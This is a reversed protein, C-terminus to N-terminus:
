SLAQSLKRFDCLVGCSSSCNSASLIKSSTLLILLGEFLFFAPLLQVIEYIFTSASGRRRCEHLLRVIYTSTGTIILVIYLRLHFTSWHGEQHLYTTKDLQLLFVSISYYFTKYIPYESIVSVSEFLGKKLLLSFPVTLFISNFTLTM